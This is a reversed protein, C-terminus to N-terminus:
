SGGQERVQPSGVPVARQYGHRLFSKEAFFTFFESHILFDEDGDGNWDMPKLSAGWFVFPLNLPAIPAAFRPQGPRSQNLYINGPKAAPQGIMLDIKGDENWDVTTLDDSRGGGAAKGVNVGPELTDVGGKRTNRFIWLNGYTETVGLDDIHDGDFDACTMIIRSGQLITFDTAKKPSDVVEPGVRLPEGSTLKLMVGPAFDFPNQRSLGRHLHINGQFTGWLLDGLGDKDWDCVLTYSYDDGYGAGPYKIPRGDVRARGRAIIEPSYPSGSYARFDDGLLLELKGDGDMDMASTFGHDRVFGWQGTLPKNNMQWRPAERSGVNLFVFCRGGNDSVLLDILGDENWDVVSPRAISGEPFEGERPLEARTFRPEARTGANKFYMLYDAEGPAQPRHIGSWFWSGTLLDLRGDGDLDAACPAAAWVTDIPKGDAELPGVYHLRPVGAEDRGISRWYFILGTTYGGTLIDPLGDADFDGVWPQSYYDRKFIAATDEPVPSEPVKLRDGDAQVFGKYALKPQKATGVNKWWLIV